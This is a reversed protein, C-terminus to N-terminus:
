EDDEDEGVTLAPAFRGGQPTTLEITALVIDGLDIDEDVVVPFVWKSSVVDGWRDVFNHKIHVTAELYMVEEEKKRVAKISDITGAIRLIM